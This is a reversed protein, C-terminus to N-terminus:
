SASVVQSLVRMGLMASEPHWPKVYMEYWAGPPIKAAIKSFGDYVIGSIKHSQTYSDLFFYKRYSFLRQTRVWM